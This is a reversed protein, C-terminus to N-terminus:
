IYKFHSTKCLRDSSQIILFFKGFNVLKLSCSLSFCMACFEVIYVVCHNWRSLVFYHM